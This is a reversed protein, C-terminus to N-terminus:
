IPIIITSEIKGIIADVDFSNQEQRCIEKKDDAYNDCQPTRISFTIVINGKEQPSVYAYQSYTSGAAAGIKTTVCFIKGEIIREESRGASEIEKGANSCTYAENNINIRPPWDFPDVFESFDDKPPFRFSIGSEEDTISQWLYNNSEPCEFSCNPETRGVLSGDPCVLTDTACTISKFSNRQQWAAYVIMLAIVMILFGSIYYTSKKM